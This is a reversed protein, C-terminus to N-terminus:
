EASHSGHNTPKPLEAGHGTFARGERGVLGAEDGLRGAQRRIQLQLQMQMVRAKRWTISWSLHALKMVTQATRLRLM